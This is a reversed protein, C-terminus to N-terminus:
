RYKNTQAAQQGCSASTVLLNPDASMVRVLLSDIYEELDKTHEEKKRVQQRLKQIMEVM